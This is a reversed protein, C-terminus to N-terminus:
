HFGDENPISAGAGRGLWAALTLLERSSHLCGLVTVADGSIAYILAYPYAM